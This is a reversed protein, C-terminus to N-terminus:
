EAEDEHDYLWNYMDSHDEVVDDNMINEMLEMYHKMGVKMVLYAYVAGVLYYIVIFVVAMLLFMGFNM